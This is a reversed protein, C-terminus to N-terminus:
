ITTSCHPAVAAAHEITAAAVVTAAAGIVTAAVTAAPLPRHVVIIRVVRSGPPLFALSISKASHARSPDVAAVVVTAGAPARAFFCWVAPCRCRRRRRRRTLEVRRFEGSSDHWDILARRRIECVYTLYCYVIYVSSVSHYYYYLSKWWGFVQIIIYSYINSYSQINYKKYYFHLIYYKVVRQTDLLPLPFYLLEEGSFLLVFFYFYYYYFGLDERQRGNWRNLLHRM